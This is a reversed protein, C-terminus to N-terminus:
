NKIKGKQEAIRYEKSCDAYGTSARIIKAAKQAENQSSMFNLFNLKAEGNIIRFRSRLKKEEIRNKVIAHAENPSVANHASVDPEIEFYSQM